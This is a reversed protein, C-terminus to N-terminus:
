NITRLIKKVITTTKLGFNREFLKRAKEKVESNNISAVNGKQAQKRRTNLYNEFSPGLKFKITTNSM